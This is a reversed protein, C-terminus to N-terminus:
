TTGMPAAMQDVAEPRRGSLAGFQISMLLLAACAPMLSAFGSAYTM